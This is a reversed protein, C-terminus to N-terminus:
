IEETTVFRVRLSDLDGLDKCGLLWAAGDECGTLGPRSQGSSNCTAGLLDLKNALGGVVEVDCVYDGSGGAVDSGVRYVTPTVEIERVALVEGQRVLVALLTAAAGTGVSSAFFAAAQVGGRRLSDGGTGSPNIQVMDALETTVADFTVTQSYSGM